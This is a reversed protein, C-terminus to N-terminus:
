SLTTFPEMIKKPDVTNNFIYNKVNYIISAPSFKNNPILELVDNPLEKDLMKNYITKIQYKDCLKLEIKVDFRGDRYFAPDLHDIHNTTVIFISNDITLTGQLINLLYELSLKSTQNNVIDNVKYEQLQGTRKLVVNTMADIDEMVIIGSNIVNKNVYEFIMHLDENTEVRQLDIYYIDKQLYNAVAQITTSKGTGPEGYLLLNFKNQLGLKQLTHGKNKFMDLSNTLKQKDDERLFLTDFDKEMENLFKCEIKKTITEKTINKPPMTKSMLEYLLPNSPNDQTKMEKLLEKKNKYDEYEPNPTETIKKDDILKVYHIKTKTTNKTYSKHITKIFDAIVQQKNIKPIQTSIQFNLQVNATDQKITGLSSMSTKFCKFENEVKSIDINYYEDIKNMIANIFNPTTTETEFKVNGSDKLDYSNNIDYMMKKYDRINNRTTSICAHGSFKYLLSCVILVQIFTLDKDFHPHKHLLLKAITYESFCINSNYIGFDIKSKIYDIVSLNSSHAVKYLCRYMTKVIESQKDTLLDLLSTVSTGVKLENCKVYTIENTYIDKGCSLMDSLKLSYNDFNIIVNDIKINVVSDKTNKVTGNSTIEDFSCNKNKFIYNCVLVLFNNDVDISICNDNDSQSIMMDEEPELIEKKQTLKALHGVFSLLLTPTQKVCSIFQMLLSTIVNKIEGASLLLLLKIINASSLSFDTQMVSGLKSILLNNMIMETMQSPNMYSQFQQNTPHKKDDTSEAM